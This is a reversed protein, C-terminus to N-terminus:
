KMKFLRLNLDKPYTMNIEEHEYNFLNEEHKYWCEKTTFRCTGNIDERCRPIFNEHVNKRHTMFEEKRNFIMECFRCKFEKPVTSKTTKHSYWCVSEEFCCKGELFYSCAKILNPHCEKRHTM